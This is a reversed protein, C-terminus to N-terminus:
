KIKYQTSYVLFVKKKNKGRNGGSSLMRHSVLVPPLGGYASSIGTEFGPMDSVAFWRKEVM